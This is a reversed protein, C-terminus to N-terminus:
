CINKYESELEKGINATILIRLSAGEVKPESITAKM